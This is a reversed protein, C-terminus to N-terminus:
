RRILQDLLRNLTELVERRGEPAIQAMKDLAEANLRPDFELAEQARETDEM